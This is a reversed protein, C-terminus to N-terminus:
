VGKNVFTAAFATGTIGSLFLFAMFGGEDFKEPDLRASVAGLLFLTTLAGTIIRLTLKM